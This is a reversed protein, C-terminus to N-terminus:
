SVKKEAEGVVLLWDGIVPNEVRSTEQIQHMKEVRKGNM